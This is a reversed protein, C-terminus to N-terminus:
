RELLSQLTQIDHKSIPLSNFRKKLDNQANLQKEREEAHHGFRPHFVHRSDTFAANLNRENLLNFDWPEEPKLNEWETVDSSEVDRKELNLEPIKEGWGTITKQEELDDYDEHLTPKTNGAARLENKLDHLYHFMEHGLTVHLLDLEERVGIKGSPLHEYKKTLHATDLCINITKAKPLYEHKSGEAIRLKGAAPDSIQFLLNRGVARTLLLKISEEIQYPFHEDNRVIEISTQNAKIKEFLKEIKDFESKKIGNIPLNGKFDDEFIILDTNSFSSNTPMNMIPLKEIKFEDDEFEEIDPTKKINEILKQGTDKLTKANVLCLLIAIKQTWDMNEQPQKLFEQLLAKREKPEVNKLLLITAEKDSWTMNEDFIIKIDEIIEARKLDPIGAIVNFVREIDPLNMDKTIFQKSINIVDRVNVNKKEMLKSLSALRSKKTLDVGCEVLLKAFELNKLIEIKDMLNMRDKWLTEAEDMFYKRKDKSFGALAKLLEPRNKPDMKQGREILDQMASSRLFPTQELIDDLIDINTSFPLRLECFKLFSNTLEVVEDKKCKSFIKVIYVTENAEKGSCKGILSRVLAQKNSSPISSITKLIQFKHEFTMGKRGFFSPMMQAIMAMEKQPFQNFVKIILLKQSENMDNDLLSSVHEAWDARETTLTNLFEEIIIEKTKPHMKQAFIQNLGKLIKAKEPGSMEPTILKKGIEMIENIKEKPITKHIFLKDDETWIENEEYLSMPYNEIIKM